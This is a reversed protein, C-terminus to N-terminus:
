YLTIKGNEEKRYNANLITCLTKLSEEMPQTTRLTLDYKYNKIHSKSTELSIGYLNRFVQALESFSAQELLNKGGTWGPNTNPDIKSPHFHNQVKDYVLGEGPNLQHVIPSSLSNVQVKGRHLAVKVQPLAPYANVNFSTGLVQIEIGSTELHMPHKEDNSVEFFAEGELKLWRNPSDYNANVTLKSQANLWVITSDPLVIKKLQRDGTVFQTEKVNNEAGTKRNPNLWIYILSFSLLLMAAMQWWLLRYQKPSAQKNLISQLLRNRLARQQRKNLKPPSASEAGTLEYWCEVVDEEEKSAKGQYYAQLLEEFNKKNM